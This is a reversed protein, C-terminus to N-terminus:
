VVGVLMATADDRAKLRPFAVCEPDSEELRRLEARLPALGRELAAQVLEGATLMHYTDVLRYFGDTALLLHTADPAPRRATEAFALCAADATLVGYGGPRNKWLRNERILPTLRPALESLGVAGGARMARLAEVLRADFPAVSSQDFAEVTGDRRRLLLKCDGLMLLAIEDGVIQAALLSASPLEIATEALPALAAATCAEHLKAVLGQLLTMGDGDASLRGLLCDATAAFWAPDSPGPFLRQPSVGTAGDLIWAARGSAAARDENVSGGAESVSDIVEFQWAM